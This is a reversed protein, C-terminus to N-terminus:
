NSFENNLENYVLYLIENPLNLEKSMAEINENIKKVLMFSMYDSLDEINKNKKSISKSILLYTMIKLIENDKELLLNEIM